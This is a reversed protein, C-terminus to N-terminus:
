REPPNSPDHVIVLRHEGRMRAANLADMEAWDAELRAQKAAAEAEAQAARLGAEVRSQARERKRVQDEPVVVITRRTKPDYVNFRQYPPLNTMFHRRPRHIPHRGATGRQKSSYGSSSSIGLPIILLTRM